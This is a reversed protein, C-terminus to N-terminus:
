RIIAVIDPTTTSTGSAVRQMTISSNTSNIVGSSVVTVRMEPTMIDPLKMSERDVTNVEDLNIKPLCCCYCLYVCFSSCKDHCPIFILDYYKSAFGFALYM